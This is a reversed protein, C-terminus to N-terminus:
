LVTNVLERDSLKYVSFNRAEYSLTAKAVFGKLNEGERKAIGHSFVQTLPVPLICVDVVRNDEDTIVVFKSKGSQNWSQKTLCNNCILKM